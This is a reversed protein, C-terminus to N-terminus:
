VRKRSIVPWLTETSRWEAFKCCTHRNLPVRIEQLDRSAPLLSPSSASGLAPKRALHHPLKWLVLLSGYGAWASTWSSCHIFAAKSLQQRSWFECTEQSLRDALLTSRAMSVSPTWSFSCNMVEAPPTWQGQDAGRGAEESAALLPM